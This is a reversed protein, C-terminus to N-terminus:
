TMGMGKTKPLEYSEIGANQLITEFPAQIAKLLIKEGINQGRYKPNVFLDDLFGIDRDRICM